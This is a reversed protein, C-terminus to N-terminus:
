QPNLILLLELLLKKQVSSSSIAVLNDVSHIERKTADTERSAEAWDSLSFLGFTVEAREGLQAFHIVNAYHVDHGVQVEDKQAADDQSVNMSAAYRKLGEVNQRVLGPDFVVREGLPGLGQLYVDIFGSTKDTRLKFGTTLIVKPIGERKRRVTIAITRKSNDSM